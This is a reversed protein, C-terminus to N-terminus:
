THHRYKKYRKYEDAQFNSIDVNRNAYLIEIIKQYVLIMSRVDALADHWDDIKGLLAPTLQGLSASPKGYTIRLM